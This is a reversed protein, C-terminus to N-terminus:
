NVNGGDTYSLEKKEVDRWCKNNTSKKNIAMRVLTLYDNGTTKLQMERILLPPPCKKMHRKAM